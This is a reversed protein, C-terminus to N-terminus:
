AIEELRNLDDFFTPTLKLVNEYQSKPLQDPTMAKGGYRFWRLFGPQEFHMWPYLSSNVSCSHVTPVATMSTDELDAIQVSYHWSDNWAAGKMEFPTQIHFWATDNVAAWDLIFPDLHDHTYPNRDIIEDNEDLFRVGKEVYVRSVLGPPALQPKGEKGNVPNRLVDLPEGTDPDTLYMSWTYIHRYGLDRYPVFRNIRLVEFDCLKIPLPESDLAAYVGGQGYLHTTKGTTDGHVRVFAELNDRPRSFDYVGNPTAWFGGQNPRPADGAVTAPEM